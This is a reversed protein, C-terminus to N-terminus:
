RQGCYIRLHLTPHHWELSLRATNIIYKRRYFVAAYM